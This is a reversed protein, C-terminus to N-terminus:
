RGFFCFFCRRVGNNTSSLVLLLFSCGDRRIEDFYLPNQNVSSVVVVSVFQLLKGRPLLLVVSINNYRKSQVIIM